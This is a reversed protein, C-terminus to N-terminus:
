RIAAVQEDRAVGQEHDARIPRTARLDPRGARRVGETPDGIPDVSWGAAVIPRISRRCRTTPGIAVFTWMRASSRLRSAMAMSVAVGDSAQIASSSAARCPGQLEDDGRVPVPVVDAVVRDDGLVRAGLDGDVGEITIPQRVRLRDPRRELDHRRHRGHVQGLAADDPEAVEAQPDQVRRAVGFARDAQQGLVVAQEVAAVGQERAPPPPDVERAAVRRLHGVRDGPQGPQFAVHRTGPDRRRSSSRGHALRAPGRGFRLGATRM